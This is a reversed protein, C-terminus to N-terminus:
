THAINLHNTANAKATTPSTISPHHKYLLLSTQLNPQVTREKISLSRSRVFIVEVIIAAKACGRERKKFRTEM